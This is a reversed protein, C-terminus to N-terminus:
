VLIEESTAIDFREIIVTFKDDKNLEISSDVEVFLPCNDSFSCLRPDILLGNLYVLPRMLTQIGTLGQRIPDPIPLEHIGLTQIKGSYTYRPQIRTLKEVAEVYWTSLPIADGTASTRLFIANAIDAFTSDNYYKFESKNFWITGLRYQSPPKDPDSSQSSLLAIIALRWHDYRAPQNPAPYDDHAQGSLGVDNIFDIETPSFRMRNDQLM